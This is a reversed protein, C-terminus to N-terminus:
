PRVSRRRDLVSWMQTILEDLLRADKDSLNNAREELTDSLSQLHELASKVHTTM